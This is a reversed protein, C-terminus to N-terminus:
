HNDVLLFGAPNRVISDVLAFGMLLKPNFTAVRSDGEDGERSLAHM